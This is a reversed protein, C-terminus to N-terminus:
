ANAALAAKHAKWLASTEQMSKGTKTHEKVFQGWDPKKPTVPVVKGGTADPDAAEEVDSFDPDRFDPDPMTAIPFFHQLRTDITKTLGLVWKNGQKAALVPEWAAPKPGVSRLLHSSADQYDSDTGILSAGADIPSMEAARVHIESEWERRAEKWDAIWADYHIGLLFMNLPNFKLYMQPPIVPATWGKPTILSQPGPRPKTAVNIVCEWERGHQDRMLHHTMKDRQPHTSTEQLGTGM